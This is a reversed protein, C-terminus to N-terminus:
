AAGRGGRRPAAGPARAAAALADVVEADTLQAFSAYWAGVGFYPEPTVL